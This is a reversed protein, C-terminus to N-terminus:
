PASSPWTPRIKSSRHQITGRALITGRDYTLATPEYHFLRHGRKQAELMLAFTSDATVNVTHWGDMQIGINLSM